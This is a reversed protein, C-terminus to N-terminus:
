RPVGAAFLFQALSVMLLLLIGFLIARAFWQTQPANKSTARLLDLHRIQCKVRIFVTFINQAISAPRSLPASYPTSRKQGLPKRGTEYKMFRMCSDVAIQGLEKNGFSAENGKV